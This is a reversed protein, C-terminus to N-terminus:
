ISNDTQTMEIYLSYKAKADEVVSADVYTTFYWVM